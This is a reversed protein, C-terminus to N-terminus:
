SVRKNCNGYSPQKGYFLIDKANRRQLLCEKTEEMGKPHAPRKISVGRKRQVLKEFALSKHDCAEPVKFKRVGKVMIGAITSYILWCNLLSGAALATRSDRGM